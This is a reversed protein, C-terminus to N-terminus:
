YGLALLSVTPTDSGSACDVVCGSQSQSIVGPCTTSLFAGTTGTFVRLCATPFAIPWNVSSSSPGSVTVTTWQLILGGPLKQYGASGLSQGSTFTQTTVVGNSLINSGDGYIFNSGALLSISAGTSTKASITFSGSTNNVVLWQKVWKPFTLTVNTTLTGTLFLIPKAAQAQTLTINSGGLAQSTSGYFFLPAWGTTGTDPNATNNDATSVWMGTQDASQVVAGKPYGGVATSFSSDYLPVGGADAWQLRQTVTYLIGNFDQQAPAVGGATPDTATLPPFGDTYSAAGDTIGIQSAIPIVNRSGSNAFPVTTKTPASSSLM